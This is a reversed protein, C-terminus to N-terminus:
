VEVRSFVAKRATAEVLWFGFNEVVECVFDTDVINEATQDPRVTIWETAGVEEYHITYGKDVLAKGGATHPEDTQLAEPVPKTNM